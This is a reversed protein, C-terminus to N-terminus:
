KALAARGYADAALMAHAVMEPTCEFPMNVLTDSPDCAMEAAPMLHEVSTDEIGLQGLTVPLGVAVCFDLVEDFEDADELVLQALTGFAVKEGHMMRHTEPLATLGNHIAHAAGLGGSEFGLGSALTDAEVVREVSETVAHAELAAKAKRGDRIITQYCYEALAYAVGTIKGRAPTLSDSERVVRAEFYTALADGMGSVMFRVPAAAVVATDVLVLNPNHKQYVVSDYEGDDTYIVSCSSCPADTAAITPVIVVPADASEAVEKATDFAKGGGVGVVVDCGNDAMVGRLRDIERRSCEGAFEDYVFSIGADTFSREITEGFMKVGGDFIIVLAKAGYAKVYEGLHALEGAGQVYKSPSIFIRAM